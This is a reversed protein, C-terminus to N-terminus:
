GRLRARLEVALADVSAHESTEVELVDGPLDLPGHRDDRVAATVEALVEPDLHGPHRERSRYRELLVELPATVYLQVLRHRPLAQFAREAQGRTFNAELIVSRGTALERNAILFLLEFALSGLQRSWSRDGTGLVDFLTEKVDDKAFLPLGLRRSLERAITTKGGGPPGTVVVLLPTDPQTM